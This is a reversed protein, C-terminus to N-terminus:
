IFKTNNTGKMLRMLAAQKKLKVREKMREM